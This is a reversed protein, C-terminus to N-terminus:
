SGMTIALKGISGKVYDKMAQPVEELKYTRQVSVRLRRAAVDAALRDLVDATPMAVVATARVDREGLQDPGIGLTSAFRGGASVLDALEMGDGALHIAAHVGEARVSRVQAALDGTYDVAHQAGFGKVFDSEGGAKATAIVEAGLAVAMQIAQSGVGGTAGGILVTEGSSPAVAEISALAATGALGLVGADSQELGSPIKTLGITEPVVVFDAFTGEGVYDRMLVGFVDDGVKVRSVGEGIAEVTGAFDKGLVLPFRHEMVDKVMGGAVAVDFGNLSSHHVKVLVEGPGPDPVPLDVLVPGTEFREIAIARMRKEEGKLWSMSLQVM